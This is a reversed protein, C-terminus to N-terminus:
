VDRKRLVPMRAQGEDKGNNKAKPIKGTLHEFAEPSDCVGDAQKYLCNGEFDERSFACAVYQQHNVATCRLISDIIAYHYM